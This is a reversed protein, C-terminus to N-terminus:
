QRQDENNGNTVKEKRLEARKDVVAKYLKAYFKIQQEKTMGNLTETLTAKSSDKLKKLQKQFARRQARNLKPEDQKEEVEVGINENEM